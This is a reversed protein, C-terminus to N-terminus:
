QEHWKTQRASLIEWVNGRIVAQMCSCCALELSRQRRTRNHNYGDEIDGSSPACPRLFRRGRRKHTRTM